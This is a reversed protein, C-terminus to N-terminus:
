VFVGLDAAFKTMEGYEEPTHIYRKGVNYAAKAFNSGPITSTQM